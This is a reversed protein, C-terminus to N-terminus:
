NGPPYFPDPLAGAGYAARPVPKLKPIPDVKGRFDKSLDALERKLDFFAPERLALTAAVAVAVVLGVIRWRM